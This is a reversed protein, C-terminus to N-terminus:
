FSLLHWVRQGIAGGTSGRVPMVIEYRNAFPGKTRVSVSQAEGRVKLEEIRAGDDEIITHEVAPEPRDAPAAQVPAPAAAAPADAARAAGALLLAAALLLPAPRNMGEMTPLGM